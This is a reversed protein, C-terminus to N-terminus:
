CGLSQLSWIGSATSTLRIMSLSPPIMRLCLLHWYPYCAVVSTPRVVRSLQRLAQSMKSTTFPVGWREPMWYLRLLQWMASFVRFGHRADLMAWKQRSLIIVGVSSELLVMRNLHVTGSKWMEFLLSLTELDDTMVWSGRLFLGTTLWHEPVPLKGRICRWQGIPMLM